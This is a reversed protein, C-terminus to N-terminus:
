ILAVVQDHRLGQVPCLLIPCRASRGSLCECNLSRTMPLEMFFGVGSGSLVPPPITKLQIASRFQVDIALTKIKSLLFGRSVSLLIM